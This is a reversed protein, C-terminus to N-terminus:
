LGGISYTFKKITGGTKMDVGWEEKYDLAKLVLKASEKPTENKDIYRYFEYLYHQAIPKDYGTKVLEKIVQDEYSVFGGAKFHSHLGSGGSPDTFDENDRKINFKAMIEKYDDASIKDPLLGTREHYDFLKSADSYTFGKFTKGTKAM